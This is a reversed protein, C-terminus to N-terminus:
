HLRLGLVMKDARFAEAYRARCEIGRLRALAAFTEADWWDHARQSVYHEQLLESKTHLGEQTLPLYLNPQLSGLDGDWKPIEYHLILHDRFATPTLAGLLAHDQHADHPHPALVLDWPHAALSALHNKITDFHAPLRGDPLAALEISTDPGAFATLSARCEAARQPTSTAVFAHLQMGSPRAHLELILGGSGIEIDDCHAGIALVRIPGRAPLLLDIM